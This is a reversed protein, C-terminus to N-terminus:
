RGLLEGTVPDRGTFMAKFQEATVEGSLDFAEGAARGYWRGPAEGHGTLYVEEDDAIERLYYDERGVGLKATDIM